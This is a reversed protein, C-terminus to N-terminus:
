HEGPRAEGYLSQVSPRLLVVFTFIGLVTGIPAWLCNVGAMILSFLRRRRRAICRGSIITLIGSVWGSFVAFSGMLIFIWAFGPPLPVSPGTAPTLLNPSHLLVAGMVIHFIFLSGFCIELAGCIYHCIALTRLHSADVQFQAPPIAYSYQLPEM